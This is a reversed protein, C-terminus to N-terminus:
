TTSDELLRQQSGNLLINVM